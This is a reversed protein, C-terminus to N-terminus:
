EKVKQTLDIKEPQALAGIVLLGIIPEVHSNIHELDNKIRELNSQNDILQRITLEIYYKDDQTKVLKANCAAIPHPTFGMLSLLIHIDSLSSQHYLTRLYYEKWGFQQDLTKRTNEVVSM